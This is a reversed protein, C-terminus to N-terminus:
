RSAGEGLRSKGEGLRAVVLYALVGFVFGPSGMLMPGYLWAPSRTVLVVLVALILIGLPILPHWALHQSRASPHATKLPEATTKGPKLVSFM